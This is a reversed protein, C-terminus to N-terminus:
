RCLLFTITIFDKILNSYECSEILMCEALGLIWRLSVGQEMAAGLVENGSVKRHYRDGVLGWLALVKSAFQQAEKRAAPAQYLGNFEDVLQQQLVVIGLQDQLQRARLQVRVPLLISLLSNTLQERFQVLEDVSVFVPVHNLVGNVLAAKQSVVPLSPISVQNPLLCCEDLLLDDPENPNLALKTLLRYVTVLVDCNDSFRCFVPLCQSKLLGWMRIM